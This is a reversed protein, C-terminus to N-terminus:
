HAGLRTDDNCARNQSRLSFECMTPEGAENLKRKKKKKKKTSNQTGSDEQTSERKQNGDAMEQETDAAPTEETADPDVDEIIVKSAIRSGSFM